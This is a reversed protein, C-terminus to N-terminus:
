ILRFAVFICSIPSSTPFPVTSFGRETKKEGQRNGHLEDWFIEVLVRRSSNSLIIECTRERIIFNNRPRAMTDNKDYRPLIEIYTM